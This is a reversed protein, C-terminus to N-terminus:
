PTNVVAFWLVVQAAGDQCTSTSSTAAAQKLFIGIEQTSSITTATTTGAWRKGVPGSGDCTIVAFETGDEITAVSTGYRFSIVAEATATASKVAAGDSCAFAECTILRVDWGFKAKGFCLSLNTHDLDVRNNQVTDSVTMFYPFLVGGSNGFDFLPCLANFDSTLAM